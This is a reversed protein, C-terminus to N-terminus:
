LPATRPLPIRTSGPVAAWVAPGAESTAHSASLRREIGSASVNADSARPCGIAPPNLAYMTRANPTRAPRAAPHSKRACTGVPPM